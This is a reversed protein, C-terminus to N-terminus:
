EGSSSVDDDDDEGNVHAEAGDSWELTASSIFGVIAHFAKRLQKRRGFIDHACATIQNHLALQRDDAKPSTIEPRGFFRRWASVMVPPSPLPSEAEEQMEDRTRRLRSLRQMEMGLAVDDRRLQSRMHIAQRYRESWAMSVLQQHHYRPPPKMTPSTATDLDSFANRRQLTCTRPPRLATDVFDLFFLHKWAMEAHIKATAHTVRCSSTVAVLDKASLFGYVVGHIADELRDLM